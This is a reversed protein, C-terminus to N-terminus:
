HSGFSKYSMCLKLPGRYRLKQTDQQDRFSRQRVSLLLTATWLQFSYIIVATKMVARIVKDSEDNSPDTPEKCRDPYIQGQDIFSNVNHQACVTITFLHMLVSLSKNFYYCMLPLATKSFIHGCTQPWIVTTSIHMVVASGRM